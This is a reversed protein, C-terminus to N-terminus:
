YIITSCWVWLTGPVRQPADKRAVSVGRAFVIHQRYPENWAQCENSVSKVSTQCGSRRCKPDLLCLSHLCRIFVVLLVGAAFLVMRCRIVDMMAM